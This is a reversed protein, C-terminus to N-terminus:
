FEFLRLEIMGEKRKPSYWAVVKGSRLLRLSYSLSYMYDEFCPGRGGNSSDLLFKSDVRFVIPGAVQQQFILSLRPSSLPNERDSVSRVIFRKAFASASCIDLRADLRTLDGYLKRFKGYQFTYCLSGFLDANLMRKKEGNNSGEGGKLWAASMGGIIGSVASHPEKLRIDYSPRSSGDDKPKVLADKKSEKLRWFDRSKEYSFAAKACLGPLISFPLEDYVHDLSQPYGGNKHIGFRYRLGSDSVLSSCNLSISEPVDWYNGRHDIYLEPWAAELTIDHGPLKHFLMAKTRRGKREGHGETSLMISSSSTLSLQSYLGFSYLSKNLFHKAVDKFSSLEWEDINSLEAKISSILKRPRFQGVLGLWSYM